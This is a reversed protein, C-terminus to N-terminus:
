LFKSDKLLLAAAVVHYSYSITIDYNPSTLWM